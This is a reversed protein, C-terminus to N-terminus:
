QSDEGATLRATEVVALPQWGDYLHPFVEGTSSPEARLHDALAAADLIVLWVESEDAFYRILTSSVQHAYSLHIFGDRQDHESGPWGIGFSKAEQWQADTLIKYVFEKSETRNEM